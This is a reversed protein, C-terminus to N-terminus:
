AAGGTADVWETNALDYWIPQGLTTDFFPRGQWLDSTPRNATTGFQKLQAIASANDDVNENYM